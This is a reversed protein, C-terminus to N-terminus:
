ILALIDRASDYRVGGLYFDPREWEWAHQYRANTRHVGHSSCGFNDLFMSKGGQKRIKRFLAALQYAADWDGFAVVSRISQTDIRDIEAGTELEYGNSHLVIRVGNITKQVASVAAFQENCYSSCSGSVDIFIYLEGLTQERRQFASRKWRKSVMETVLGRSDIRPSPDGIAGMKLAVKKFVAIWDEVLEMRLNQINEDLFNGGYCARPHSLTMGCGVRGGRRASAVSPQGFLDVIQITGSGQSTPRESLTLASGGGTGALPSNDAFFSADSLSLREQADKSNLISSRRGSHGAAPSEQPSDTLTDPETLSSVSQAGADSATMSLGSLGEPRGCVGEGKPSNKEARHDVEGSNGNGGHRHSDGSPSSEETGKPSNTEARQDVEGSNGNGGHRHSDGSPSSEEAGKPRIEGEERKALNNIERDITRLLQGCEYLSLVRERTFGWALPLGVLSDDLQVIKDATIITVARGAKVRRHILRRFRRLSLERM